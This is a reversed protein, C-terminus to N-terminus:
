PPDGGARDRCSGPVLEHFATRSSLAPSGVGLEPEGLHQRRYPLSRAWLPNECSVAPLAALALSDKM